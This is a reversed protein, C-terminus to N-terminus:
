ECHSAWPFRLPRVYRVLPRRVFGSASKKVLEEYLKEAKVKVVELFSAGADLREILKCNSSQARNRPTFLEV